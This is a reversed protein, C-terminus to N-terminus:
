KIRGISRLGVPVRSAVSERASYYSRLKTVRTLHSLLSDRSALLDVDAFEKINHNARFVFQGVGDFAVLGMGARAFLVSLGTISFHNVHALQFYRRLDNRYGLERLTNLVPVQCAVLGDDSLLSRVGMIGISPVALHEIVDDLIVLDFSKDSRFDELRVNELQIGTREGGELYTSDLDIGVCDFGIGAFPELTGGAGCGVDLVRSFSNKLVGIGSLFTLLSQGAAAQMERFAVGPEERGTSLKRYWNSYFASMSDSDFRTTSYMSPCGRCFATSLPIGMRESTSVIDGDTRGCVPCSNAEVGLQGLRIAAVLQDRIQVQFDSMRIFTKPVKKSDLWRRLTRIRSDISRNM